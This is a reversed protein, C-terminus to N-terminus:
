IKSNMQRNESGLLSSHSMRIEIVGTANKIVQGNQRDKLSGLGTRKEHLGSNREILFAQFHMSFGSERERSEV